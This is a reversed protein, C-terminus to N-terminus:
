KRLIDHRGALVERGTGEATMLNSVSNQTPADDSHTRISGASGLADEADQRGQVLAALLAVTVLALAVQSAGPVFVVSQLLLLLLQSFLRELGFSLLLLKTAL